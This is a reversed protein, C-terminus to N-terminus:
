SDARRADPRAGAGAGAAATHELALVRQRLQALERQHRAEWERQRAEWEQRERVREVRERALALEVEGLRRLLMGGGGGGGGDDDHEQGAAAAAAARGEGGPRSRRSDDDDDGGGGGRSGGGGQAASAPRVGALQAAAAVVEAPLQGLTTGGASSAAPEAAVGPAAATAAADEGQAGEQVEEAVMDAGSGWSDLGGGSFVSNLRRAFEEVERDQQERLAPDLADDDDDDGSELDFGDFALASQDAAFIGSRGGAKASPQRAGSDASSGSSSSSSSGASRSHASRAKSGSKGGKSKSKNVKGGKGGKQQQQQQQQQQQLLQQQRQRQRRAEEQEEAERAARAAEEAAARAAAEKKKQRERKKRAKSKGGEGAGAGGGLAGAGGGGGDADGGEIFSLLEDVSRTDERVGGTSAGATAEGSELLQALEKAQALEKRKRAYLSNLMRVRADETGFEIPAVKEEETLDDPLNFTERIEEPNKGQIHKALARCTLDILSQLDLYHSASALECLRATEIRMFAKNFNKREKISHGPALHFRCYEVIRRLADASVKHLLVPREPQTPDWDMQLVPSLFAIQKEVEMITGDNTEVAISGTLQYQPPVGDSTALPYDSDWESLAQQPGKIANLATLESSRGSQADLGGSEVATMRPASSRTATCCRELTRAHQGKQAGPCHPQAGHHHAQGHHGHRRAHLLAAPATSGGGAAPRRFWKPWRFDIKHIAHSYM